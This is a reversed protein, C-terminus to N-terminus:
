FVFNIRLYPGHIGFNNYHDISDGAYAVDYATINNIGNHIWIWEYGLEIFTNFGCFCRQYTGGLKADITPLVKWTPNNKLNVGATGATRTSYFHFNSHSRGCLLAGRVNGRVGLVGWCCDDNTLQYLYGLGLVPGIGWFRSHTKLSNKVPRTNGHDDFNGFSKFHRAYQVNTSELGILLNLSDVCSSVIQRNFTADVSYYKFSDHVQSKGSYTTDEPIQAGDGPSGVTDFLFNGSVASSHGANFYTFRADVATQQDCLQYLAEVRFGPKYQTNNCHRKGNPFVEGNIVNNNSTIAYSSQDLAPKLYLLEGSLLLNGERHSAFNDADFGSLTFSCALLASFTFKLSMRLPSNFM